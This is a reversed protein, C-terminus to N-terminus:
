DRDYGQEELWEKHLEYGRKSRIVLNGYQDHQYRPNANINNTVVNTKKTNAEMGRVRERLGIIGKRGRYTARTIRADTSKIRLKTLSM